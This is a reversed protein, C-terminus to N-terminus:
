PQAARAILRRRFAFLCFAAIAIELALAALIGPSPLGDVALGIFRGTPFALFVVLTAAVALQALASRWIGVLMLIGLTTLGAGPARLESLLSPDQAIAISYSAYFTQPALTITAGIGVATLGSLCLALKELRTLTM